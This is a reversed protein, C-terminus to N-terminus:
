DPVEMEAPPRDKRLWLLYEVNGDSGKIPSQIVDQANLGAAALCSVVRVLARQRTLPDRIIGGSGVESRTAEFQPKVLVILDADATTFESLKTAVTCLSIFSLDAVLIPFPGGLHSLEAHRFNVREFSRVRRDSRLLAHLQGRGVDVAVVEVAGADLLVETFGGTSSGVDIARRGMVRVPFRELASLLKTAGRSVWRREDSVITIPTGPSVLTAPKPTPVGRVVM